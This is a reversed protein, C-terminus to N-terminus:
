CLNEMKQIATVFFVQKKSADGGLIKKNWDTKSKSQHIDVFRIMGNLRPSGWFYETAAIM